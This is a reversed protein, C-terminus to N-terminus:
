SEICKEDHDATSFFAPRPKPSSIPKVSQSSNSIEGLMGESIKEGGAGVKIVEVCCECVDGVCACFPDCIKAVMECSPDDTSEILRAVGKLRSHEVGAVPKAAEVVASGDFKPGPKRIGDNWDGM